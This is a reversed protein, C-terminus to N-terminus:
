FARVYIPKSTRAIDQGLKSDSFMFELEQDKVVGRIAATLRTFIGTDKENADVLHVANYGTQEIKLREKM